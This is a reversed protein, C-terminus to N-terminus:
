SRVLIVVLNDIIFNLKDKIKVVDNEKAHRQLVHTFSNFKNNLEKVKSITSDLDRRSVAAHNTLEDRHQKFFKILKSFDKVRGKEYFEELEANGEKYRILIIELFLNEILKRCLMMTATYSAFSYTDNIETILQSYLHKLKVSELVVPNILINRKEPYPEQDRPAEWKIKPKLKV